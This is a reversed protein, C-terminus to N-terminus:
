IFFSVVLCKQKNSIVEFPALHYRRINSFRVQIDQMKLVKKHFMNHSQPFCFWGTGCKQKLIDSFDVKQVM